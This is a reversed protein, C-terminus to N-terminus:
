VVPGEPEVLVVAAVVVALVVVVVCFRRPQDAYFPRSQARSTLQRAAAAAGHTEDRPGDTLACDASIQM